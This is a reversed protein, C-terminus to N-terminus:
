VYILEESMQPLTSFCIQLLCHIYPHPFTQFDLLPPPIIIHHAYDARCHNRQFLQDARSNVSRGLDPLLIVGGGLVNSGRGGNRCGQQDLLINFYKMHM